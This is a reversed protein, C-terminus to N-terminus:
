FDEPIAKYSARQAWFACRLMGGENGASAAQMSGGTSSRELQQVGGAGARGLVRWGSRVRGRGGVRVSM